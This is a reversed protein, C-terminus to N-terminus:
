YWGHTRSHAWAVSPKGYRAHIYSLGRAVQQPAPTTTKEGLMQAVGAAHKGSWRDASHNYAQANWHSENDWLKVLARWESRNWQPYNLAMLGRTYVKIMYPTWVTLPETLCKPQYKHDQFAKLPIGILSTITLVISSSISIFKNPLARM